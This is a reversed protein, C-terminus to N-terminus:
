DFGGFIQTPDDSTKSEEVLEKPKAKEPPKGGMVGKTKVPLAVEQETIGEILM